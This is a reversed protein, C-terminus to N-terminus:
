SARRTALVERSGDAYVEALRYMRSETVHEALAIAEALDAAWMQKMRITGPTSAIIYHTCTM